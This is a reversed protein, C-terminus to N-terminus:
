DDWDRDDDDDDDDHRDDWDDDDDHRDDWDDDYRDDHDDDYRDDHDDYRDDDYRDDWDDDYRNDGGAAPYNVYSGGNQDDHWEWDDDWDDDWDDHGWDDDDGWDDYDRDWDFKDELYDEVEDLYDEVRDIADDMREATRGWRDDWRDNLRDLKHDIANLQGIYSYYQTRRQGASVNWNAAKAAKFIKKIQKRYKNLKKEDSNKGKSTNWKKAAKATGKVKIKMTAKLSTGKIEVTIKATGAKRAMIRTDDGRKRLVKAVSPKSSKWVINSDRVYDDDFAGDADLEVTRGVWATRSGDIYISRSAAKTDVNAALMVAAAAALTLAGALVKKRM